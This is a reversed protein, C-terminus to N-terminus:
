AIGVEWLALNYITCFLVTSCYCNWLILIFFSFLPFFPSPFCDCKVFDQKKRKEGKKEGREVEWESKNIFREGPAYVSNNVSSIGRAKQSQTLGALVNLEINNRCSRCFSKVKSERERERERDIILGVYNLRVIPIPNSVPNSGFNRDARSPDSISGV